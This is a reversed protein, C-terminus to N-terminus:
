VNVISQPRFAKPRRNYGGLIKLAPVASKDGGFGKFKSDPYPFMAHKIIPYGTEYLVETTGFGFNSNQGKASAYVWSRETRNFPKEEKDNAVWYQRLEPGITELWYRFHGVVPFNHQITHGRQLIDRLAVGIIVLAFVGFAVGYPHASVFDWATTM